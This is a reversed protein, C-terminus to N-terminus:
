VHSELDEQFKPIKIKEKERGFHFGVFFAAGLTLIILLLKFFNKM